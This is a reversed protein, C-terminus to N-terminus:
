CNAAALSWVAAIAISALSAVNPCVLVASLVILGDFTPYRFPQRSVNGLCDHLSSAKPRRSLGTAFGEVAVVDHRLDSRAAALQDCRFPLSLVLGHILYLHVM